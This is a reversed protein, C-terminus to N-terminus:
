PKESGTSPEIANEDEVTMEGMSELWTKIARRVVRSKNLDNENAYKTIKELMESPM